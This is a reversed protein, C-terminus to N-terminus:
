VSKKAAEGVTPCNTKEDGQSQHTLQRLITQVGSACQRRAGPVRHEPDAPPHPDTEAKAPDPDQIPRTFFFPDPEPSGFWKKKLM